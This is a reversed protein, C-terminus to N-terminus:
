LSIINLKIVNRQKCPLCTFTYFIIMYQVTRNANVESEIVFQNYLANRDETIDINHKQLNQLYIQRGEVERKLKFRQFCFVALSTIWTSFIVTGVIVGLPEIGDNQNVIECSFIRPVYEIKGWWEFLPLAIVFTSFLM